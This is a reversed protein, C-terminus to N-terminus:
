NVLSEKIEKITPKSTEYYWVNGYGTDVLVNMDWGQNFIFRKVTAIQEFGGIDAKVARGKELFPFDTAIREIHTLYWQGHRKYEAVTMEKELQEVLENYLKTNM